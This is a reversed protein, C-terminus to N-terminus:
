RLADICRAYHPSYVVWEVFWLCEVIGGGLSKNIGYVPQKHGM